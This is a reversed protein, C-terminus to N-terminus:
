IHLYKNKEVVKAACELEKEAPVTAYRKEYIEKLLKNESNQIIETAQPSFPLEYQNEYELVLLASVEALSLERGLKTYLSHFKQGGLRTWILAVNAQKIIDVGYVGDKLDGAYSIEKTFLLKKDAIDWARIVNKAQTYIVTDNDAFTRIHLGPENSHTICALHQGERPKWIEIAKGTLVALRAGTADLRMGNVVEQTNLIRIIQGGPVGYVEIKKPEKKLVHCVYDDQPSICYSPNQARMLIPIKLLLGNTTADHVQLQNSGELYIYKDGITACGCRSNEYLIQGTAVDFACMHTTCCPKDGNTTIDENFFAYLIQNDSSFKRAFLSFYRQGNLPYHIQKIRNGSAVDWLTLWLQDHTVCISKDSNFVVSRYTTEPNNGLPPIFEYSHDYVGCNQAYLNNTPENYKSHFKEPVTSEDLVAQLVQANSHALRHALHKGVVHTVEDSSLNAIAQEYGKNPDFQAIVCAPVKRAALEVLSLVQSPAKQIQRPPMEMAGISVTLIFLVSIFIKM